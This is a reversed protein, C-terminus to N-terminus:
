EWECRYECFGAGRARCQTELVRPSRGGSMEIARALWGVATLCDEANADDAELTRVVAARAGAPEYTREGVTHQTAYLRPLNRLLFHPDGERVYPRQVGTPGLNADASFRGMSLFLRSRDGEALLAAITMELRLLLDAPYWSSPLLIGGLVARDAETMRRLVREASEPGQARLYRMRAVLLTGKVKGPDKAPAAV